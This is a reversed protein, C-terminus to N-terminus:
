SVQRQGCCQVISQGPKLGSRTRRRSRVSSVVPTKRESRGPRRRFQYISNDGPRVTEYFDPSPKRGSCISHGQGCGLVTPELSKRRRSRACKPRSWTDAGAENADPILNFRWKQEGTKLDFAGIWNKAGWDAGAPGFIVRDEFILPPMSLYQSTKSDAIKKNWLLSGDKMNLAILYGDPTGRILRGQKLAVGRNVKSLVGDKLAWTYSWRVRCSTADIAVTGADITLYMTGDYVLPNSQMSAVNESRYICVPRLRSANAVNIENSVVYRQGQYDKAAYLWNKRDTAANLLEADTPGNLLPTNSPAAAQGVPATGLTELYAILNKRVMSDTIAVPMTTGPVKATSSTLFNDLTDPQWILGAARMATSYNYDQLGGSHRGIVEALSPGFGNKGVVVTHCVACQNTFATKGAAADGQAQASQFLIASLVAAVRMDITM